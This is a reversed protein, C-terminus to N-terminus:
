HQLEVSAYLKCRVNTVDRPIGITSGNSSSITEGSSNTLITYLYHTVTDEDTSSTYITKWTNGDTTEEIVFRGKYATRTASDGDRYYSKFQVFNPSITNGSSRKLVNCSPEIMYTRGPTGDAGAKQKSISFRRTISLTLLYTAKIDM